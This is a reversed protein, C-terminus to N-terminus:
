KATKLVILCWLSTSVFIIEKSGATFRSKMEDRACTICPIVPQGRSINVQHATWCSRLLLCSRGSCTIDKAM